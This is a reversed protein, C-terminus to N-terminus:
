WGQNKDVPCVCPLLGRTGRPLQFNISSVDLSLPCLLWRNRKGNPPSCIICVADCVQTRPLFGGPSESRAARSRKRFGQSKLDCTSLPGSSLFNGGLPPRPTVLIISSIPNTKNYSLPWLSLLPESGQCPLSKGKPLVDQEEVSSLPAPNQFVGATPFTPSLGVTGLVEPRLPGAENTILGQPHHDPACNPCCWGLWDSVVSDVAM